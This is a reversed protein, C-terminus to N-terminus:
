CKWKDRTNLIVILTELNLYIKCGKMFRLNLTGTPKLFHLM